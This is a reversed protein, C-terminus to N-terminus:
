KKLTTGDFFTSQLAVLAGQLWCLQQLLLATKTLLQSKQSKKASQFAFAKRNLQLHWKCTKFHWKYVVSGWFLALIVWGHRRPPSKRANGIFVWIQASECGNGGIAWIKKSEVRLFRESVTSFGGTCWFRMLRRQSGLSYTYCNSGLTVLWKQCAVFPEKHDFNRKHLCKCKELCM